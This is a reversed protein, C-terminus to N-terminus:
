WWYILISIKGSSVRIIIDKEFCGKELAFLDRKFIIAKSPVKAM